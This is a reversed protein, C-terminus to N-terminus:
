VNIGSVAVFWSPVARYILPTDSRWCFPYSHVLSGVDVLRGREKIAAIIAKDAEKVHKGAFDPVEETFRGSLDVPCPLGEGKEIVGHALCVRYDDEGFAPAQHVVGTGSDDTVYGDSVVKFAGSAALDAFYPFLPEYRLGVLESGQLKAIVEFGGGGAGAGKKDGGAAEAAAPKEGGAAAEGAAPAAGGDAPAAAAAAVNGSSGKGKKKGGGGGGGGGNSNNNAAAAGKKGKPVAGPLAELRSEAVIFVAGTAPNRVKVYTFDPHVCLALNSPLTWPTTTWAVLAAGDADDKLPFSVMVAPDAVDKYNLGAEFNALPTSCATSFPM